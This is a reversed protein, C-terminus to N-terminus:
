WVSERRYIYQYSFNNKLSDFNILYELWNKILFLKLFTADDM